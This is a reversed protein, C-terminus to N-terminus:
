KKSNYTEALKVYMAYGLNLLDSNDGKKLDQDVDNEGHSTIKRMWASMSFKEPPPLEGHNNKKYEELVRAKEQRELIKSYYKDGLSITQLRAQLRSAFHILQPYRSAMEIFETVNLYGKSEKDFKLVATWNRPGGNLTVSNIVKSLDVFDSPGFRGKGAKNYCEFVFRVMDAHSFMLFTASMRVFEDFGITENKDMDILSYVKDTFSNNLIGQFGDIEGLAHLLELRDIAGNKDEDIKDFSSRLIRLEPQQM